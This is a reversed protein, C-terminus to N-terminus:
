GKSKEKTLLAVNTKSGIDISCAKNTKPLARLKMKM